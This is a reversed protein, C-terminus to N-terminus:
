EKFKTCKEKNQKLCEISKIINKGYVSGTYESIKINNSDTKYSYGNLLIINDINSRFMNNSLGIVVHPTQTTSLDFYNTM